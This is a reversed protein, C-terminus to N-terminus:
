KKIENDKDNLVEQKEHEHIQKHTHCCGSDLDCEIDNCIDELCNLTRNFISLIFDM